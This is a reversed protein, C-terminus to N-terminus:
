RIYTAENKQKTKQKSDSSAKQKAFGIEFKPSFMNICLTNIINM